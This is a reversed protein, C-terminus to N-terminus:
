TQELKTKVMHEFTYSNLIKNYAKLKGVRHKWSGGVKLLINQM